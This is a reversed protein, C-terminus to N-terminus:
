DLWRLAEYEAQWLIYGPAEHFRTKCAYEAVGFFFPLRTIPVLALAPTGIDLLREIAVSRLDQLGWIQWKLWSVHAPKTAKTM